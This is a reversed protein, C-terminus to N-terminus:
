RRRGPNHLDPRTLRGNSGLLGENSINASWVKQRAGGGSPGVPRAEYGDAVVSCPFRKFPTM